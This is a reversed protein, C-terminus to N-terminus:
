ASLVIGAIICVMGLVEKKQLSEKLFLIGLVTVYIYGGAELMQGRSLPVYQYALATVISSVFFLGYAAIVYLNLYERMRSSYKRGTSKKLLIQSVASIFVSAHFVGEYFIKDDM